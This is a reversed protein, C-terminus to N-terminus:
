TELTSGMSLGCLLPPQLYVNVSSIFDFHVISFEKNIKSDTIAPYEILTRDARGCSLSSQSAQGSIQRPAIM